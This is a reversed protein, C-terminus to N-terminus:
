KESMRSYPTDFGALSMFENLLGNNLLGNDHGLETCKELRPEVPDVQLNETGPEVASRITSRCIIEGSVDDVVKWCMKAGIKEDVGAWRARMEKSKGPFSQESEDLLYYVPQWLFFFLVPSVDNQAFCAMMLPYKTGDGLYPDVCSNLCLCIYVLCLFWAIPLAGSRDMRRNTHRKM